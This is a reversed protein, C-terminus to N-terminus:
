GNRCIKEQYTRAETYNIPEKGKKRFTHHSSGSNPSKMKYGYDELVKRLEEFRMANDLSYIRALLKEWKSM